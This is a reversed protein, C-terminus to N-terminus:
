EETSEKGRHIVEPEESAAEILDEEGTTTEAATRPMSVSILVKGPDDVLVVNEPLTVQGAEVHQGILLESVDIEIHEPIDAPLCEVEIERSIFDLLGGDRKVGIAVGMLEIPARVQVREDMSVRLFDIHILGGTLPDYQIDKVMSHRSEETGQLKLLFVANEGSTKLLRHVIRTEVQIPLPEVDGGYVVAPVLGARRLRRSANKGKNEREIVEVTTEKNAM